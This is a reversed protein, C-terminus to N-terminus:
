ALSLTPLLGIQLNFTKVNLKLNKTTKVLYKVKSDLLKLICKFKHANHSYIYGRSVIDITFLKLEYHRIEQTLFTILMTIMKTDHAGENNTEFCVTLEILISIQTGRNIVFTVFSIRRPIVVIDPKQTTPLIDCPVTTTWNCFQKGIFMKSM